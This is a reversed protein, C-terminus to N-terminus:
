FPTWCENRVCVNKRSPQKLGLLIQMGYLRQFVPPLLIPARACTIPLVAIGKKLSFTTGTAFRVLASMKSNAPGSIPSTILPLFDKLVSAFFTPFYVRFVCNPVPLLCLQIMGVFLVLFVLQEHLSKKVFM